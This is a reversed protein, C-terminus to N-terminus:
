VIQKIAVDITKLVLIYNNPKVNAYFNFCPKM